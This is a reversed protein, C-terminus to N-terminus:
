VIEVRYRNIGREPIASGAGYQSIFIDAGRVVQGVVTVESSPSTCCFWTGFPCTKLFNGAVADGKPLSNLEEITIRKVPYDMVTRIRKAQEAAEARQRRRKEANEEEQAEIEKRERRKQFFKRIIDIIVM